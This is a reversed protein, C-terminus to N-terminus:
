SISTSRCSDTAVCPHHNSGLSSYSAGLRSTGLKRSNFALFVRRIGGIGGEGSDGGKLMPRM